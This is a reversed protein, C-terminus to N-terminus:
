DNQNSVQPTGTVTVRDCTRWKARLRKHTDPTSTSNNADNPTPRASADVAGGFGCGATAADCGAGDSADGLTIRDAGTTGTARPYEVPNGSGAGARTDSSTASRVAVDDVHFFESPDRM